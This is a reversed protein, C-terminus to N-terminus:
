RIVEYIRIHDKKNIPLYDEEIIKLLKFKNPHDNIYDILDNDVKAYSRFTGGYFEGYIVYSINYMDVLFMHETDIPWAMVRKDTLYDLEAPYGVQAMIGDKPLLNIFKATNASEIIKKKSLIFHSNSSYYFPLYLILILTVLIIATKYYKLLKLKQAISFIGYSIILYLFIIATVIYRFYVNAQMIPFVYVVFLLVSLLLGNEKFGKKLTLKTIEYIGYVAIILLSAYVIVLFILYPSLFDVINSLRLGRPLSLVKLNLMEVINQIYHSPKFNYGFTSYKKQEEEFFHPSLLQRLGFESTKVITGDVAAPYYENSSYIYFRVGIWSSYALIAFILPIVAYKIKTNKGFLLYFVILSPILFLAHDTTLGLLIAFFSSYISHRFMRKKLFLLYFYLTALTLMVAFSEKVIDTSIKIYIDSISYLILAGFAIYNNNALLKVLKYVVFFTISASVLSVLIGAIHDEFLLNFINIFYPYMPPHVLFLQHNYFEHFPFNKALNLYIAADTAQIFYYESNSFIRLFIFIIFILLIIVREKKLINKLM